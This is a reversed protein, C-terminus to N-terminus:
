AAKPEVTRAALWENLDVGRYFVRAGVKLYRPGRGEHRWSASTSYPIVATLTPDGAAYLRGEDFM